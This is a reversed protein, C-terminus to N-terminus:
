RWNERESERARERRKREGGLERVGRREGEREVTERQRELSNRILFKYVCPNQHTIVCFQQIEIFLCSAYVAPLIRFPYAPMRSLQPCTKGVRARM